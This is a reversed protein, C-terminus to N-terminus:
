NATLQHVFLVDLVILTLLSNHRWEATPAPSASQQTIVLAFPETTGKRLVSEHVCAPSQLIRRASILVLPRFGWLDSLMKKGLSFHDNPLNFDHM